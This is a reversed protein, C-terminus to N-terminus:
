GQSQHLTYEGVSVISRREHVSAWESRNTEPKGVLDKYLLYSGNITSVAMNKVYFGNHVSFSKGSQHKYEGFGVMGTIQNGAADVYHVSDGDHFDRYVPSMNKANETEKKMWAIFFPREMRTIISRGRWITITLAALLVFWLLPVSSVTFFLKIHMPFAEGLTPLQRNLSIRVYYQTYMALIFNAVFCMPIYLVLYVFLFIRARLSLIYRGTRTHFLENM